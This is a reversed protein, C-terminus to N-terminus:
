EPAVGDEEWTWQQESRKISKPRARKRTRRRKLENDALRELPSAVPPPILSALQEALGLAKLIRIFSDLSIGKGRTALRTVTGRSIGAEKALRAQTINRKLRISELRESLMDEIAGSTLDSINHM